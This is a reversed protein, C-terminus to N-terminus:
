EALWWDELNFFPYLANSQVDRLRQSTGILREPEWLFTYPQDEHLIRQLEVLLPGAAEPTIQSGAEDILRDVEPNSYSGYNWGDDISRSHFAYSLDLTTDIGWTGLTAKFDHRQNSQILTNMELFRPQADIGVEALQQQILILTDSRVTSGANTTMEFSFSKGDKDLIGDGDHDQWGRSALLRRAEDRDFPWPDLDRDHAWVSSIIPSTSPRAHRGWISEILLDRDISMTLAQRVEREAFLPDATNWCLYTYARHWFTLLDTHATEEVLAADAVSLGNVFDLRGAILETVQARLDPLHRFVVRDLFPRDPKFYSENRALVIQEQPKWAELVFPGDTVLNETFWDSRTRWEDFPLQSWVHKPLILGENADLLQFAYSKSFHFRVTYPDVVEVDTIQEKVQAIDWSVAPDIQALWTWRVDEATVPEGDSWLVDERLHFTLQKRDESFEYSEALSPAFTPPHDQFDPQEQLLQLFLKQLVDSSFQTGSAVLENFGDIDSLSAFVAQGGKRPTRSEVVPESDQDPEPRCASLGLVSLVLVATSLAKTRRM